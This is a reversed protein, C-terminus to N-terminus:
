SAVPQRLSAILNDHRAHTALSYKIAVKGIDRSIVDPVARIHSLMNIAANYQTDVTTCTGGARHARTEGACVGTMGGEAQAAEM